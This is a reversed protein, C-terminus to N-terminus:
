NELDQAGTQELLAARERQVWVHYRWMVLRHLLMQTLMYFGRRWWTARKGMWIPTFDRVETEFTESGGDRWWRFLLEGMHERPAHKSSLLGREVRMSVEGPVGTAEIASFGMLMYGMPRLYITPENDPRSDLSGLLGFSMARVRGIYAQAARMVAEDLAQRGAELEAQAPELAFTTTEVSRAIGERTIMAQADYSTKAPRMLASPPAGAADPDQATTM